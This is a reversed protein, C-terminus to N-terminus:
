FLGPPNISDIQKLLIVTYSQIQGLSKFISKVKPIVM